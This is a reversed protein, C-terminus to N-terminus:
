GGYLRSRLWKEVEIMPDAVNRKFSPSKTELFAQLLDRDRVCKTDAGKVIKPGFDEWEGILDHVHQEVIKLQKGVARESRFRFRESRTALERNIRELALQSAILSQMEAFYKDAQEATLQDGANPQRFGLGRLTRRVAKIGNYADALETFIRLRYERLDRAFGLMQTVGSAVIGVLGIQVGAKLLEPWIDPPKEPVALSAVVLGAAIAVGTLFVVTTSTRPRM